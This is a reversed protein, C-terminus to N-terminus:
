EGQLCGGGTKLFDRNSFEEQTLYHHGNITQNFFQGAPGQVPGYVFNCEDGIEFGAV